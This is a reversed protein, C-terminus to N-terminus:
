KKILLIGSIKTTKVCRSNEQDHELTLHHTMKRVKNRWKAYVRYFKQTKNETFTKWRQRKGAIVETLKKSLPINNRRNMRIKMVLVQKKAAMELSLKFSEWNQQVSMSPNYQIGDLESRM